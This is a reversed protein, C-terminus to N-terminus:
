LLLIFVWKRLYRTLFFVLPVSEGWSMKVQPIGSSSQSYSSLSNIEQPSIKLSFSLHKTFVPGSSSMLQLQFYLQFVMKLIKKKKMKNWFSFSPIIPSNWFFLLAFYPDFSFLLSFYSFYPGTSLRCLPSFWHLYIKSILLCLLEWIQCSRLFIYVHLKM